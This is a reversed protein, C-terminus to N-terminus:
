KAQVGDPIVGSEFESLEEVFSRKAQVGDPIVGSEFRM